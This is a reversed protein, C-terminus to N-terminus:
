SSADAHPESFRPGPLPPPAPPLPAMPIWPTKAADIYLKSLNEYYNALAEASKVVLAIDEKMSTGSERAFKNMRTIFARMTRAREMNYEADELYDQGLGSYAARVAPPAGLASAKFQSVVILCSLAVFLAGVLVWPLLAWRRGISSKANDKM